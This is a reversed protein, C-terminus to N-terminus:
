MKLIFSATLLINNQEISTISFCDFCDLIYHEKENFSKDVIKPIAKLVEEYLINENERYKSIIFWDLMSIAAAASEHRHIEHTFEKAVNAQKWLLDLRREKISKRFSSIALLATIIGAIVAVILSVFQAEDILSKDM